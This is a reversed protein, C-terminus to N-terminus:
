LNNNNSNNDTGNQTTWQIRPGLPAPGSCLSAPHSRPHYPFQQASSRRNHCSLFVIIFDVLDLDHRSSRGRSIRAFEDFDAATTPESQSHTTTTPPGRVLITIMMKMM